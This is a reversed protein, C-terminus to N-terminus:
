NFFQPAKSKILDKYWLDALKQPKLESFNPLDTTLFIM